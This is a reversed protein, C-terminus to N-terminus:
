HCSVPRQLRCRQNSGLGPLRRAPLVGAHPPYRTLLSEPVIGARRMGTYSLPLAATEYAAPRRTLVTWRSWARTAWSTSASAQPALDAPELGATRVLIVM